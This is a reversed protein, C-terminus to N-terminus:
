GIDEEIGMAGEIHSVRQALKNQEAKMSEISKDVKTFWNSLLFGIVAMLIPSIIVALDGLQAM